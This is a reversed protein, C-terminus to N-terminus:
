LVVEGLYTMDVMDVPWVVQRANIDEYCGIDSYWKYVTAHRGLKSAFVHLGHKDPNPPYGNWTTTM